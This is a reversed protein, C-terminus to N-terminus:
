IRQASTVFAGNSRIPFATAPELAALDVLAYPPLENLQVGYGSLAFWVPVVAGTTYVRGKEISVGCPHADSAVAVVHTGPPTRPFIM